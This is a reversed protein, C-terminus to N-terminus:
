TILIRGTTQGSVVVCVSLCILSVKLLGFLAPNAYIAADFEVPNEKGLHEMVDRRIDFVPILKTAISPNSWSSNPACWGKHFVSDSDANDSARPIYQFIEEALHPVVPAIASTLTTVIHYQVTQCARRELDDPSNCYCRDRTINIYFSSLDSYVFKEVHQIVRHYSLSNYAEDIQQITSHLVHLMYKDVVTMQLYDVCNQHPDFDQLNGLLYRVCKRVKFIDENYGALITPGVTIQPHHHGHAVWWRLVDVGYSPSLSKDKGGEIVEYPDTVNGLSKSMKKGDEDTAFGHTVIHKYPATGQAAVSTLLSTQFWGKFQDIGELYIDAQSGVNQLTNAWSVGSDFWIDLIDEGRVYDSSQGKSIKSLLDDPLLKDIPLEWWSDVGEKKFVEIIHSVTQETLLPEDTVKHYFVPIPVGWKRQRSICWYPRSQLQAIMGAQSQPPTIKVSQLSELAADRLASVDIFWQQSARIIIPQKTRWDYPYSHTFDSVQLIHSSLLSIVAQNADKLVHKGILSDEVGSIYKGEADVHCELPLGHKMAVQFDDHGHAPATHVLGTGLGPLVHKGPLIPLTKGNMPHKYTFGKLDYINVLNKLDSGVIGALQDAFAAECLYVSSSNPCKLFAYKIDPNFCIAQNFPLTWPTTTWVVAKVESFEPFVHTPFNLPFTVYVAQSVHQPNYELEAEALASGSSPSWYVPMYSRYMYGAAFIKYFVELQKAQYDIDMTLYPRSWDAMVGWRTFSKKQDKVQTKAYKRARERIQLPTLEQHKGSSDTIAKLEIPMGHCDWGPVYHVKVKKMVKYRNTIDKM